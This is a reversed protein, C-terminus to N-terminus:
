VAILRFKRGKGLSRGIYERDDRLQIASAQRVRDIVAQPPPPPPPPPLEADPLELLPVLAAALLLVALLAAGDALLALAGVGM